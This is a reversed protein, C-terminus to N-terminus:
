VHFVLLKTSFSDSGYGVLCCYLGECNTNFKDDLIISVNQTANLHINLM